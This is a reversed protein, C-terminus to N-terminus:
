EEFIEAAPCVKQLAVVAAAHDNGEGIFIYSTPGDTGEQIVSALISSAAIFVRM